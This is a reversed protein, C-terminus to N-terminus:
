PRGHLTHSVESISDVLLLKPCSSIVLHFFTRTLSIMVNVPLLKTELLDQCVHHVVIAPIIFRLYFTLWDFFGLEVPVSWHSFARALSIMASM